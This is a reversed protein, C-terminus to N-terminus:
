KQVEVSVLAEAKMKKNKGIENKPCLEYFNVSFLRGESLPSSATYHSLLFHCTSFSHFLRNFSICIFIKIFWM